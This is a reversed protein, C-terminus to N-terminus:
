LEPDIYSWELTGMLVLASDHTMWRENITHGERREVIVKTGDISTRQTDRDGHLGGLPARLLVAMDIVRYHKM